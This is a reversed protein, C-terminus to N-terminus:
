NKQIALKVAIRINDSSFVCNYIGIPTNPLEIKQETSGVPLEKKYICSGTMNFVEISGACNPKLQYSLTFVGVNPNPFVTFSDSDPYQNLGVTANTAINSKYTYCYQSVMCYYDGNGTETINLSQQNAGNVPVNNHYWQYGTGTTATYTNLSTWTIVPTFSNSIYKITTYDEANLQGSHGAIIVNNFADTKIGIPVADINTGGDYTQTWATQLTGNNNYKITKIDKDGQTNTVYGTVYIDPASGSGLSMDQAIDDGTDGFTKIWQQVGNSNYKLALFNYNETASADIDTFGTIYINGSNDLKIKSPRSDVTGSPMYSALFGLLNNTSVIRIKENDGSLKLSYGCIIADGASNLVFDVPVLRDAWVSYGWNSSTNAGDSPDFHWM